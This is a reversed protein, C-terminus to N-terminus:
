KAIYVPSSSKTTSTGCVATTQVRGMGVTATSPIPLATGLLITTPATFSFTPKSSVVVAKAKDVIEITFTCSGTYNEDYLFVNIQSAAGGRKIIGSPELIGLNPALVNTVCNYCPLGTTNPGIVTMINVIFPAAAADSDADLAVYGNAADLPTLALTVPANPDTPAASQAWLSISGATLLALFTFSKLTNNKM